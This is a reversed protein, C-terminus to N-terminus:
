LFCSPSGLSYPGSLSAASNKALPPTGYIQANGLAIMPTRGSKHVRKPRECKTLGKLCRFRVQSTKLNLERWEALPDAGRVIGVGAFLSIKKGPRFEVESTEALSGVQRGAESGDAEGLPVSEFSGGELLGKDSPNTTSSGLSFSAVGNEDSGLKVNMSELVAEPLGLPRLNALRKRPRSRSAGNHQTRGFSEETRGSTSEAGQRGNRGWNVDERRGRNGDSDSGESSGRRDAQVDKGDSYTGVSRAQSKPRTKPQTGKQAAQIGDEAHTLASRIAVAFECGDGGLWGVPGAYMGRDFPETSLVFQESRYSRRKCAPPGRVCLM